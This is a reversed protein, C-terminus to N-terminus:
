TISGTLVYVMAMEKRKGLADSRQWVYMAYMGCMGYMGLDIGYSAWKTEGQGAWDLRRKQVPILLVPDSNGL